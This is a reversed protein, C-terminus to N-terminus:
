VDTKNEPKKMFFVIKSGQMSTQEDLQGMENECCYISLSQSHSSAPKYSASALSFLV